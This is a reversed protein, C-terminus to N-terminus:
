ILWNKVGERTSARAINGRTLNNYANVSDAFAKEAAQAAKHTEKLAKIHEDVNEVYEGCNSIRFKEPNLEIIKNDATLAPYKEGSWIPYFELKSFPASYDGCYGFYITISAEGYQNGISVYEGITKKLEDRIKEATKEGHPKGAYKNWVSCINGINEAFFAQAANNKLIEIKIKIDNNNETEKIYQQELAKYKEKEKEAKEIDGSRYASRVIEYSLEKETKATDIIDARAKKIEEIIELYKKM